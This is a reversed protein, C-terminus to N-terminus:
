WWRWGQALSELREVLGVDCSEVEGFLVNDSHALLLLAAALVRVSCRPAETEVSFGTSTMMASM